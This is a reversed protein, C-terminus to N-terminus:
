NVTTKSSPYNLILRYQYPIKTQTAGAIETVIILLKHGSLAIDENFIGSIIFQWAELLFLWCSPYHYARSLSFSIFGSKRGPKKGVARWPKWGCRGASDPYRILFPTYLRDNCVHLQMFAPIIVSATWRWGSYFAIVMQWSRSMNFPMM